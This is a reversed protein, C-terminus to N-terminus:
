QFATVNEPKAAFQTPNALAQTTLDPNAANYGANVQQGFQNTANTIDTGVQNYQTNLGGAVGAAQNQIQPANASLYDGLKSASSGFQTPTGTIAGKATGAGTSGGTAPPAGGQSSPLNTTQGTPALQNQENIPLFSM